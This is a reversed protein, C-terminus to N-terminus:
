LGFAVARLAGKGRQARRAALKGEAGAGERGGGGKNKKMRYSNDQGTHARKAALLSGGLKRAEEPEAEISSFEVSAHTM